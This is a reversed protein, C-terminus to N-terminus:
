HEAILLEKLGPGHGTSTVTQVSNFATVQSLGELRSAKGTRAIYPIATKVGCKLEMVVSQAECGQAERPPPSASPAPM